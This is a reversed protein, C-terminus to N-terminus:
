FCFRNDWFPTNFLNERLHKPFCVVKSLIRVSLAVINSFSLPFRFLLSHSSHNRRYKGPPFDLVSEFGVGFFVVRRRLDIALFAGLVCLFVRFARFARFVCPVLFRLFRLHHSQCHSVTVSMLFYKPHKIMYKRYHISYIILASSENNPHGNGGCGIDIPPDFGICSFSHGANYFNTGLCHHSIHVCFSWHVIDGFYRFGDM